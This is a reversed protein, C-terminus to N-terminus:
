EKGLVTPLYLEINESPISPIPVSGGTILPLFLPRLAEGSVILQTAGWAELQVDAYSTARIDVRRSSGVSASLPVTVTIFTRSATSGPVPVLPPLASVAWQPTLAAARAATSLQYADAVPGVNTVLVPVLIQQGPRVLLTPPTLLLMRYLIQSAGLLPTSGALDGLVIGADLILGENDVFLQIAGSVLIVAGNSRLDIQGGDGVALILVGNANLAGAALGSLQLLLGDGGFIAVDHGTVQTGVGILLIVPPEAAANGDGGGLLVDGDQGDAGGAAGASGEGGRVQGDKIEITPSAMLTVDGGDGGNQKETTAPNTSGGNGGVVLGNGDSGDGRNKVAGPGGASGILTVDGGPGAAGSGVALVNGGNGARMLGANDVVLAVVQIPGGAGATGTSGTLNGGHGGLVKAGPAVSVSGGAPTAPVASVGVDLRVAGGDGGAGAGDGGNGAQIIGVVVVNGGGDATPPVVAGPGSVAVTGGAGGAGTRGAGGDGGRIEGANLMEGLPSTISLDVVGGSGGDTGAAGNGARIVGRNNLLDARIAMSGGDGGRDQASEAGHGALIKGENFITRASLAVSRGAAGTGDAGTSARIEGFNQIEEAAVINVDAAVPGLIVGNNQLGRISLPGSLQVTRGDLVGVIDTANPLRAPEWTDPDDWSGSNVAVITPGLPALIATTTFVSEDVFGADITLALTSTLLGLYSNAPLAIAQVFAQGPDIGQSTMVPEGIFNPVLTSTLATQLRVDGTNTIHATITFPQGMLPPDPTVTQALAYGPQGITSTDNEVVAIAGDSSTLELRVVMEAKPSVTTPTITLTERWREGPNLGFTRTLVGGPTAQVPLTVTVLLSLLQNGTNDATLEYSVPRRLIVTEPRRVITTVLGFNPPTVAVVNDVRDSIGELTSVEMSYGIEGVMQAPIQLAVSEAWTQGVPISATWVQVSNGALGAPLTATVQVTLVVNGTNAVQFTIFGPRGAVLPDPSALTSLSMEPHYYEDAGIDSARDTPRPQGEWDHDVASALAAERAPSGSSLRYDNADMEVFLPDSTLRLAGESFGTPNTPATGADTENNFWLTGNVSVSGGDLVFVGLEHYAIINNLLTAVSQAGGTALVSIASGDGGSNYLLTNHTMQPSASLVYVGSGSSIVTNSVIINNTIQPASAEVYIGGGNLASNEFLYNGDFTADSHAIMIGGASQAKNGTFNNRVVQAPSYDLYLAGASGATNGTFRNDMVTAASADAFIAGGASGASNEKFTNAHIQATSGSLFFAGGDKSAGNREFFNDEFSASSKSLFFAAGAVASNNTLTNTIFQADSRLLFGGGGYIVSGGDRIVTNSFVPSADVIYLNGGADQGDPGGGQGSGNGGQITLSELLPQVGGNIYISRATSIPQIATVQTMPYSATWNDPDYGGRLHVNKDLYLVQRVGNREIVERCIGAVKILDGAQADDVAPQLGTYTRSPDREIQAVCPVPFEDAGIDPVGAQPIADSDVDKSVTTEGGENIAPSDKLLHYGDPAFLPDDEINTEDTAVAVPGNWRTAVNHWLTVSLTTSNKETLSLAVPQDAVITNLFSVRSPVPGFTDIFVAQGGQNRAITTQLLQPSSGQVYFAGGRGSSVNDVFANATMVADSGNALFIGAGDVARNGRVLFREFVIDSKDAYLAGGNGVARNDVLRNGGVGISSDNLYFAGGNGGAQNGQADVGQILAGGSRLIYLAGGDLTATNTYFTSDLIISDSEDLYFAGGLSSAQNREAYVEGFALKSLKSFLAGGNRGSNANITAIDLSANSLRLYLGGGDESATNSLVTTNALQAASFNFLYFGGGNRGRNGTVRNNTMITASADLHFGGGDLVAVNDDVHNGDIIAESAAFLHLGGGTRANNQLVQNEKFNVKTNELYAGGGRGTGDSQGDASNFTVINEQVVGASGDIYFGGGDVSAQNLTVTNSVVAPEGTALFFGGGRPANNAQVRNRQVALASDLLYFAGGDKDASNGEIENDIIQSKSGNAFLAGGQSAQNNTVTNYQFTIESDTGVYFGGGQTATNDHIQSQVMVAKSSVFYAGGGETAKNGFLEVNSLVATSSIVYLGGGVEAAGGTIHLDYIQMGKDTEITLGRGAGQANIVTKYTQPYPREWDCEMVGSQATTTECYGGQITVDKRVIAVTSHGDRNIITSYTRGDSYGAVKILDGDEASDIATQLTCPQKWDLCLHDGAADTGGVTAYRTRRFTYEDAGIDPKLGQKRDGSDIDQSLGSAKANQFALSIRKLHYDGNNPDQFGPNEGSFDNSQSKESFAGSSNFSPSPGWFTFDAAAEPPYFTPYIIPIPIFFGFGPVIVVILHPIIEEGIDIGGGGNEWILNNALELNTQSYGYVGKGSNRAITNHYLKAPPPTALPLILEPSFPPPMLPPLLLFFKFISRNQRMYVGNGANDVIMNGSVEAAQFLWMHIGVGVHGSGAGASNKGIYNNLIRIDSAEAYIGGGGGREEVLALDFIFPIFEMEGAGTHNEVIRNFQLTAPSKYAYIGGGSAGSSNNQILTNQVQGRSGTMYVGGGYGSVSHGLIQSKAIQADSAKLYFGGGDTAGTNNRVIVNEFTGSGGNIYVGAGGVSASNNEIISDVFLPKSGVDVYVGGGQTGASNNLIIVNSFIPSANVIQVGGGRAGSGGTITLDYVKPEIGENLVRVVTGSTARLTSPYLDPDHARFDTSWGGQIMMNKNNILSVSGLCTGSVLIKDSDLLVRNVADQVSPLFSTGREETVLKVGCAGTYVPTGDRSQAVDGMVLAQLFTTTAVSQDSDNPDLGPFSVSAKSIMEKIEGPVAEVTARARISIVAQEAIGFTGLNCTLAGLNCSGRSSGIALAQQEPPLTNQFSVSPVSSKSNNFVTIVYTTEIDKSLNLNTASHFLNLGLTYNREYAGVDVPQLRQEDMLDRLAFDGAEASVDVGRNYGASSRQIRYDGGAADVFAPDGFIPSPSEILEESWDRESNNWWVNSVAVAEAGNSGGVGVEHNAFINNIMVSGDSKAAYYVAVNHGNGTLNQHINDAITNNILSLKTGSIFIASGLGTSVGISNRVMLNNVLTLKGGDMAIAGGSRSAENERFTSNAILGEAGKLFLGGGNDAIIVDESIICTPDSPTACKIVPPDVMTIVKTETLIGNIRVYQLFPIKNGAVLNYTFSLEKTGSVYVGVGIGAQAQTAQTRMYTTENNQITNGTVTMSGGDLYLGGGRDGINAELTSDIVTHTGGLLFLGGGDVDAGNGNFTNGDFRIEGGLAYAGGGNSGQNGAFSTNGVSGSVQTLYLGGGPGRFSRNSSFTGNTLTIAGGEVFIAGGAVDAQNGTFAPSTLSLAVNRGYIAGGSKTVVDGTIVASAAPAARGSPAASSVELAAGPLHGVDTPMPQQFLAMIEGIGMGPAGSIMDPTVEVRGDHILGREALEEPSLWQPAFAAAVEEAIAEDAARGRATITVAALNGSFTVSSDFSLSPGEWYIAGGSGQSLTRNQEFRGGGGTLASGLGFLAGGSGKAQNSLWDSNVLTGTSTLVHAAGGDGDSINQSFTSGSVEFTGASLSFAGGSGGAVNTTWTSNDIILTAASLALAGGDEGATNDVIQSDRVTIQGGDARLLGGRRASNGEASAGDFLLTSNSEAFITGDGTTSNQAFVSNNTLNFTSAQLYVVGGNGQGSQGTVTSASLSIQANNAFFASGRGSPATNLTILSSGNVYLQGGSLAAAGGDSGARNGTVSVGNLTATGAAVYIAGGTQAAANNRIPAGNITVTGNALAIAGGNGGANNMELLTAADMQVASGAAPGSVYLAGGDLTSQNTTVTVGNLTVSGGAVALAGGYTATHNNLVVNNLTLAANTVLIAGGSGDGGGLAGNGGTMSLDRVTVTAGAAIVLGRGANLLSFVVPNNIPNPAGDFNLPDYGGAVTVSIPIRAMQNGGSRNVVGSYVGGAIRITDGAGSQDVTYQLTRCANFRTSCAGSDTGTTSIYRTVGLVTQAAPRAPATAQADEGTLSLVWILLTALLVAGFLPTLRVFWTRQVTRTRANGTMAPSHLM